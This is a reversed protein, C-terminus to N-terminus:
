FYVASAAGFPVRFVSLGYRKQLESIANSRFVGLKQSGNM